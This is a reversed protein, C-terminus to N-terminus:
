IRYDGDMFAEGLSLRDNYMQLQTKPSSYEAPKTKRLNEYFSWTRKPVNPRFSSRQSGRIPAEFSETQKPQDLGLTRIAVKPNRRAMEDLEQVSMGLDELQSKLINAYNEGHQEKLKDQVSKFNQDAIEQYKMEQFTSRALSKFEDPNFTPKNDTEGAPNNGNSQNQQQNRMQDLLEKLSQGADIEERAKLFDERLVDYERNKHEVMLDALVKGKAAAKHAAEPSEYKSVDYKGGPGFLQNYATDEDIQTPDSQNTDLLSNM